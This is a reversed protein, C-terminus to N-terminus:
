TQVVAFGSFLDLPNTGIEIAFADAISLLDTPSLEGGEEYAM